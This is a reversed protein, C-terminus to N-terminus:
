VHTPRRRRAYIEVFADAMAGASTRQAAEAAAAGLSSRAESSALLRRLGQALDTADGPAVLVGTRGDAILEQPGGTRTAIVARGLAQAEAVVLGFPEPKRSAHVVVDVSAMLATADSRHGTFHVRDAVGLEAALAPLSDAYEREWGYLAGGVVLFRADAFESAVEAAARLFVDAGKWHQLRGVHAVVVSNPPWGAMSRVDVPAAAVDDPDVGNLVCTPRLRLWRAFAAAMWSSPVVVEAFPTFRVAIQTLGGGVSHMPADHLWAVAPVGATRAAWGALLAMKEGVPQVIDAGSSRVADVLARHAVRLQWPSRLRAAVGLRLVAIGEAAVEDVFPGDALFAVVPDVGRAPLHRALALLVREAGGREGAGDVFLVRTM